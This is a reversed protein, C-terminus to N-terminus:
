LWQKLRIALRNQRKMMRSDAAVLSGFWGAPLASLGLGLVARVDRDGILLSKFARRAASRDGDVLSMLAIRRRAQREVARFARRQRPAMTDAYRAELLAILALIDAYHTRRGIRDTINGGHRRYFSVRKPVGYYDWGSLGISIWMAWDHHTSFDLMQTGADALAQRRLLVAQGAIYGRRIQGEVRRHLGVPFRVWRPRELVRGDADAFSVDGYALGVRPHGDLIAGLTELADIELWDDSASPCVYDGTALELARNMTPVIGRNPQELYTIRDLFPRVAGRTADPSGDNIVIVQSPPRTQGLVSELTQAIFRAHGYAPIVVSITPERPVM